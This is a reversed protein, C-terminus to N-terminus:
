AVQPKWGISDDDSDLDDGLEDAPDGAEAFRDCLVVLAEIRKSATELVTVGPHKQAQDGANVITVVQESELESVATEAVRVWATMLYDLHVRAPNDASLLLAERESAAAALEKATKRNHGGSAM